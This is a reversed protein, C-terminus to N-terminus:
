RKSKTKVAKKKKAKAPKAAASKPASPTEVKAAARVGSASKSAPRVGSASKAASRIGSVSKAPLRVGSEGRRTIQTPIEPTGEIVIYKEVLVHDGAADVYRMEYGYTGHSTLKVKGQILRGNKGARGKGGIGHNFTSGTICGDVDIKVGDLDKEFFRVYIDSDQPFRDATIVWNIKKGPRVPGPSAVTTSVSGDKNTTITVDIQHDASM